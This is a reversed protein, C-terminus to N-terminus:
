NRSLEYEIWGRLASVDMASPYRVVPYGRKNVVFRYDLMCADIGVIWSVVTDIHM